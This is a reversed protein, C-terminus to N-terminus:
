GATEHGRGPLVFSSGCTPLSAEGVPHLLRFGEVSRGQRANAHGNRDRHGQERVPVRISYGMFVTSSTSRAAQHYQSAAFMRILGLVLFFWGTMAVLAPGVLGAIQKSSAV